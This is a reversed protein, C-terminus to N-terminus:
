HRVDLAGDLVCDLCVRKPTKPAHPRFQVEEGCVSCTGTLNDAMMLPVTARVVVIVEAKEAEEDTVIKVPVGHVVADKV